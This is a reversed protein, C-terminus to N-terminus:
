FAPVIALALTSILHAGMHAMMAAELGRRAYLWGFAIGPLTNGALVALIVGVSAHPAILFLLPLHGAAFLLAALLVAVSILAAGPVKPRGALRWGIWMFLSVLAWRTLLEEDVGGYLLKTALPLDFAALRAKAGAGDVLHRGITLSYGALLAAVTLGVILAPLWQRRFVAGAGRGEIWADVLPARLGVRKATAEGIFVAAVTLLAPQIMALMRLALPPLPKAILAEFPVLALSAVGILGGALLVQWRRM